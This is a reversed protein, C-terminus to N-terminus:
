NCNTLEWRKELLEFKMGNTITSFIKHHYFMKRTHKHARCIKNVRIKLIKISNLTTYGMVLIIKIQKESFWDHLYEMDHCTGSHYQKICSTLKLTLPFGAMSLTVPHKYILGLFTVAM